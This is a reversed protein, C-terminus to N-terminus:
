DVDMTMELLNARMGAKKYAKIAAANDPYVTLKFHSIGRERAWEKLTGLIMQNIGRGRYDPATYMFGLYGHRSHTFYGKSDRIQVYGSGVLTSGDLAVLVETLPDTVLASLDYYSIPDDALCPDFPREATIIAQEFALLQPLDEALAPRILIENM